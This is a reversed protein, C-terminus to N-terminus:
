QVGHYQRKSSPTSSIITNYSVDSSALIFFFLFNLVCSIKHMTCVARFKLLLMLKGPDHVRTVQSPDRQIIFVINHDISHIHTTMHSTVMAIPSLDTNTPLGESTFCSLVDTISVSESLSAVGVPPPAVMQGFMLDPTTLRRIM